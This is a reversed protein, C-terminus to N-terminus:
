VVVVALLCALLECDQVVCLGAAGLWGGSVLPCPAGRGLRDAGMGM